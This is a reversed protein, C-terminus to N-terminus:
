LGHVIVADFRPLNELLWPILKPNYAWPNKAPGLLHIPFTDERVFSATPDDLSVVENQVGLKELEPISNRIGQCPGGSSPDM